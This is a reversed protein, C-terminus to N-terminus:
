PPLFENTGYRAPSVPADILHNAVMWACMAAVNGSQLTGFPVGGRRAAFLPLYVEAVRATLGRQLSPNARLLENLSRRPDALTDEYGHVTAAM